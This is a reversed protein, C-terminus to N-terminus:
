PRRPGRLLVCAMLAALLILAEFGPAKKKAAGEELVLKLQPRTASEFDGQGSSWGEATVFGRASEPGTRQAAWHWRRESEHAWVARTYTLDERALDFDATEITHSKAKKDNEYTVSILVFLSIPDPRDISGDAGTFVVRSVRPKNGELGDVKINHQVLQTVNAIKPERSVGLPALVSFNAVESAEVWGNQNGTYFPRIAQHYSCDPKGDICHRLDVASEGAVQLKDASIDLASGGEDGSGEPGTPRFVFKLEEFQFVIGFDVGQASVPPLLLACALLASALAIRNRM